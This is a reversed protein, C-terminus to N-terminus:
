RVIDDASLTTNHSVYKKLEKKYEFILMQCTRKQKKTLM